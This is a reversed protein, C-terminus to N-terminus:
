VISTLDFRIVSRLFLTELAIVTQKPKIRAICPADYNNISKQYARWRPNHNTALSNIPAPTVRASGTVQNTFFLSM